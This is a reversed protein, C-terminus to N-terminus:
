SVIQSLEAQADKYQLQLPRIRAAWGEAKESTVLALEGKLAKMTEELKKRREEQAARLEAARQAAEALRKAELEEEAATALESRKAELKAVIQKERSDLKEVRDADMDMGADVEAAMENNVQELELELEGIEKTLREQKATSDEAGGSSGAGATKMKAEMTAEEAHLQDAQCGGAKAIAQDQYYAFHYCKCSVAPGPPDGEDLILQGDRSKTEVDIWVGGDPQALAWPKEKSHSGGGELRQRGSVRLNFELDEWVRVAPKYDAAGIVDLNFIIAQLVSLPVIM